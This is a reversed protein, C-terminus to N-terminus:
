SADLVGQVIELFSDPNLSAGGVLAGDIGPTTALERINGPKVSGGYLVPVQAGHSSFSGLREKIWGHVEGAQAPTAVQGTGIAWVPEYAVVLRELAGKGKVGELVADLQGLVVERARGADREALTEGVCAVPSLGATLVAHVARTVQPDDVGFVRRRESHGVLVRRVGVSALQPASVAGTFAGEPEPYSAQAVLEVRADAGGIAGAVPVLFPHSPALGVAVRSPDWERGQLGEAVAKALAVAGAADLHLKWNGIVLRQPM